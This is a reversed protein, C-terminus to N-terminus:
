GTPAFYNGMAHDAIAHDAIAFGIDSSATEAFRFHIGLWTVPQQKASGDIQASSAAYATDLEAAASPM